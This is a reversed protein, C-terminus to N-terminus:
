FDYRGSYPASGPNAPIKKSAAFRGSEPALGIKQRLSIKDEKFKKIIKEIPSLDIGSPIVKIKDKFSYNQEYYLKRDLESSVIITKAIQGIIKELFLSLRIYIYMNNLLQCHVLINGEDIVWM